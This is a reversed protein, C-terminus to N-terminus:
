VPSHSVRVVSFPSSSNATTFLWFRCPGASEPSSPLIRVYSKGCCVKPAPRLLNNRARLAASNRGVVGDV